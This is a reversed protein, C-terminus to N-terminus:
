CPMGGSFNEVCGAVVISISPRESLVVNEGDFVIKIGVESEARFELRPLGVRGSSGLVFVKM